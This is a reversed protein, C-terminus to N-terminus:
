SAAVSLSSAVDLQKTNIALVSKYVSFRNRRSWDGEEELIGEIKKITNRVKVSAAELAIYYHLLQFLIDIRANSGIAKEYSKEFLDEIDEDGAVYKCRVRKM